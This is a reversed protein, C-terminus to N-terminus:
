TPGSVAGGRAVSKALRLLVHRVSDPISYYARVLKLTERRKLQGDESSRGRERAEELGEFFCSVPVGLVRSLEYLKGASIRNAGLEYRHVQQLTIGIGKGLQAQTLGALTRCLWV